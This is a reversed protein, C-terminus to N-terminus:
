KIPGYINLEQGDLTVELYEFPGQAGKGSKRLVMRMGERFNDGSIYMRDVDFDIEGELTMRSSLGDQDGEFFYGLKEADEKSLSATVVLERGEDELWSKVQERSVVEM